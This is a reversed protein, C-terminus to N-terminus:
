KRETGGVGVVASLHGLDRCISSSRSELDRRVLLTPADIVLVAPTEPARTSGSEVLLEPVAMTRGTVAAPFFSMEVAESHPRSKRESASAANATVRMRTQGAFMPHPPLLAEAKCQEGLAIVHPLALFAAAEAGPVAGPWGAPVGASRSCSAM